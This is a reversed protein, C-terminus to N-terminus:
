QKIIKIQQIQGIECHISVFYIGSSLNDLGELSYEDTQNCLIYEKVIVGSINYLEIKHFFPNGKAQIKVQNVM